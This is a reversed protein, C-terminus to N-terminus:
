YILKKKLNQLKKVLDLGFSFRDHSLQDRSIALYNKSFIKILYKDILKIM